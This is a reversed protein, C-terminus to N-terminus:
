LTPHVKIPVGRGLDLLSPAIRAVSVRVGLAEDSRRALSATNRRLPANKTSNLQSYQTARLLSTKLALSLSILHSHHLEPIFPRSFCSIGSFFGASWLYQGPHYVWMLFYPVPMALPQVRNAKTPPSCDLRYSSRTEGPPRSLSGGGVRPRSIVIARAAPKVKSGRSSRQLTNSHLPSIQASRLMTTKLASSPSSLDTHLLVPICPRSFRSIGSFVRRGSADDPEIGVHSFEPDVGGLVSGPEGYYSALLRVVAGGRGRASHKFYVNEWLVILRPYTRQFDRLHVCYSSFAARWKLAKCKTAVACKIHTATDGKDSERKGAKFASFLELYAPGPIHWIFGDKRSFSPKLFEGGDKVLVKIKILQAPLQSSYRVLVDRPRPAYVGHWSKRRSDYQEYVHSHGGPSYCACFLPCAVLAEAFLEAGGGWVSSGGRGKTFKAITFLSGRPGSKFGVREERSTKARGEEKKAVLSPSFPHLLENRGKGLVGGESFATRSRLRHPSLSRLHYPLPRTRNGFPTAGPNERPFITVSAAALQRTKEPIERKGGGKCDPAAGERVRTPQRSGSTSLWEFREARANLQTSPNPRSKVVLDQSGIPTFYPSFQAAGSHLPPPYPVNGLFGTSWCHVYVRLSPLCTFHFYTYM